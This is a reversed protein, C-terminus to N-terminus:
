GVITNFIRFNKFLLPKFICIKMLISDGCNTSFQVTGHWSEFYNINLVYPLPMDNYNVSDVVPVSVSQRVM